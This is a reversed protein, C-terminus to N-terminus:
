DSQRKTRSSALRESSRFEATIESCSAAFAQKVNILLWAARRRIQELVLGAVDIGFGYRQQSWERISTRPRQDQVDTSSRWIETYAPAWGSLRM